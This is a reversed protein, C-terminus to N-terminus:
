EDIRACAPHPPCDAMPRESSLPGADGYLVPPSEREAVDAEVLARRGSWKWMGAAIAMPSNGSPSSSSSAIPSRGSREPPATNVVRAAAWDRADRDLWGRALASGDIGALTKFARLLDRQVHLLARDELLQELPQWHLARAGSRLSIWSPSGISAPGKGFRGPGARRVHRSRVQLALRSVPRRRAARARAFRRARDAAALRDAPISSCAAM